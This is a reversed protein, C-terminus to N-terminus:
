RDPHAFSGTLSTGGLKVEASITATQTKFADGPFAYFFLSGDESNAAAAMSIERGTSVKLKASAESASLM